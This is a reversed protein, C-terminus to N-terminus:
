AIWRARLELSVDDVWVTTSVGRRPPPLLSDEEEEEETAMATESDTVVMVLVSEGEPAPIPDLTVMGMMEEEDFLALKM